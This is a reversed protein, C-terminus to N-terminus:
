DEKEECYNEIWDIVLERRSKGQTTRKTDFKELLDYDIRITINTSNKHRDNPYKSKEM